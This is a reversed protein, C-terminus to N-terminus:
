QNRDIWNTHATHTLTHTHTHTHTHGHESYLFEHGTAYQGSFIVCSRGAWPPVSISMFVHCQFSIVYLYLSQVIAKNTPQLLQLQICTQNDTNSSQQRTLDTSIEFLITILGSLGCIMKSPLYLASFLPMFCNSAGPTRIWTPM